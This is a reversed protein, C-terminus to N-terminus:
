GSDNSFKVKFWYSNRNGTRKSCSRTCSTTCCEEDVEVRQGNPVAGPVCEADEHPEKFLITTRQVVYMKAKPPKERRLYMIILGLAGLVIAALVPLGGFMELDAGM